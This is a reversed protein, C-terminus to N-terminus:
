QLFRVAGFCVLHKVELVSAQTPCPSSPGHKQDPPVVLPLKTISSVRGERHFRSESGPSPSRFGPLLMLPPPPGTERQGAIEGSDRTGLGRATSGHELSKRRKGHKQRNVPTSCSAPCLLPVSPSRPVRFDSKPGKKLRGKM